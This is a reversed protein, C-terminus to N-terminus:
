GRACGSRAGFRDAEAARAQALRRVIGPLPHHEAPRDALVLRDLMRQRSLQISSSAALRIANLAARSEVVPGLRAAGFGIGCIDQRRLRTRRGTLGRHHRMATHAVGLFKVDLAIQALRHDRADRRDARLQDQAKNGFPTPGASTRNLSGSHSGLRKKKEKTKAATGGGAAAIIKFLERLMETVGDGSASSLVFPTKKAARKLKAIQKKIAEPTMSDSKTLAVIEPKDELGNAYADLEARVTKYDAAPMKAPATSSICCFVAANPTASSATASASAKM